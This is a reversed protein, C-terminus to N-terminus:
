TSKALQLMAALAMLRAELSFFGVHAQLLHNPNKLRSIM